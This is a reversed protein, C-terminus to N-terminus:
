GGGRFTLVVRISAKSMSTWTKDSYKSEKVAQIFDTAVTPFRLEIRHEVVSFLTADFKGIKRELTEPVTEGADKLKKLQRILATFGESYEDPRLFRPHDQAITGLDTDWSMQRGGYAVVLCSKGLFERIERRFCADEKMEKFMEKFRIKEKQFDTWQMCNGGTYAMAHNM